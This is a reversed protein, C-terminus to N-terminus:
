KRKDNPKYNQAVYDKLVKTILGSLTRGDADALKILKAKLLPDCRFNVVPLPESEPKKM